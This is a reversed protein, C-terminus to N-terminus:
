TVYGPLPKRGKTDGNGAVTFYKEKSFVVQKIQSWGTKKQTKDFSSKM